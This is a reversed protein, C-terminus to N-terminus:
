SESTTLIKLILCIHSALRIVRVVKLTKAKLFRSDYIIWWSERCGYYFFKPVQPLCEISVFFNYSQM